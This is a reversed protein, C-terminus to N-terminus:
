KLSLVRMNRFNNTAKLINKYITIVMLFIFFDCFIYLNTIGQKTDFSLNHILYM